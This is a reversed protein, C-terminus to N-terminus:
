FAWQNSCHGCYAQTLTEERSLGTVLMSVGGTLIAATAKGGSVGKKQVVSKLESKERRRAIPVSWLQISQGGSSPLVSTKSPHWIGGEEEPPMAAIKRQEAVILVVLGALPALIGVGVLIALDM